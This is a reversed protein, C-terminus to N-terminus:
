IGNHKRGCATAQQDRAGQFAPQCHICLYARYGKHQYSHFTDEPYEWHLGALNGSDGFDFTEQLRLNMKILAADM